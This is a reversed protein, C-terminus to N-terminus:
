RPEDRDLSSDGKDQRPRKRHMNVNWGRILTPGTSRPLEASAGTEKHDYPITKLEPKNSWARHAPVPAPQLKRYKNSGADSSGSPTSRHRHASGGTALGRPTGPPSQIMTGSGFMGSPNGFTPSMITGSPSGMYSMTNQAPNSLLREGSMPPLPHTQSSDPPFYSARHYPRSSPPPYYSSQVSRNVEYFPDDSVSHTRSRPPRLPPLTEVSIPQSFSMRSGPTSLPPPPYAHRSSHAADAPPLAAPLPQPQQQQPPPWYLRSYPSQRTNDPGYGSLRRSNYGPDIPRPDPPYASTHVAAPPPPPPPPPPPHPPPYYTSRDATSRGLSPTNTKYEPRPIPVPYGQREQALGGGPPLSIHDAQSHTYLPPPPELSFRSSRLAHVTPVSTLLEVQKTDMRPELEAPPEAPPEAQTHATLTSISPPPPPPPPSPPSPPSPPPPSASAETKGVAAPLRPEVNCLEALFHLDVDNNAPTPPDPKSDTFVDRIADYRLAKPTAPVARTVEQAAVYASAYTLVSMASLVPSSQDAGLVKTVSVVEKGKDQAGLEEVVHEGDEKEEEEKEEAETEAALTEGEKETEREQQREDEDRSGTQTGIVTEVDKRRTEDDKAVEKDKEAELLIESARPPRAKLEREATGLSKSTLEENSQIFEAVSFDNPDLGLTKCFRRLNAKLKLRLPLEESRKQNSTSQHSRSAHSERGSPNAIFVNPRGPMIYPAPPEQENISGELFIGYKPHVKYKEVLDQDFDDPEMTSFDYGNCWQDYHVHKTNPTDLYRGRKALTHGKSSDNTSDRFGIEWKEFTFPWPALFRNTSSKDRASARQNYAYVGYGDKTAAGKPLPPTKERATQKGQALASVPASTASGDVLPPEPSVSASAEEGTTSEPAISKNAKAASRLLGAAPQHLEPKATPMPEPEIAQSDDTNRTARKPTTQGDPQDVAKRKVGAAARGKGKGRTSSFAEKSAIEAPEVQRHKKWMETGIVRSPYPVLHGNQHCEFIGFDNDLEADSIPKYEYQEDFVDVPLGQAHLAGLIRLRNEQGEYFTEFMDEVANEFAQQVLYQEAQFSHKAAELEYELRRDCLHVKHDLNDQLQKVVAVHEGALKYSDPRQLMDDVTREALEQLAPKLALAVAQYNAKLDRQREYAAQVRSDSFNKVRGRRTVGRGRSATTPKSVSANAVGKGGGRGRGRGGRGGRGRGRSSVAPPECAPPSTESAM